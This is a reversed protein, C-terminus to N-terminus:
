WWLDFIGVFLGGVLLFCLRKYWYCVIVVLIGWDCVVYVVLEIIIKMKNMCVRWFRLLWGKEGVVSVWVSWLGIGKSNCFWFM